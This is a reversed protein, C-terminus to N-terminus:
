QSSGSFRGLSDALTLRMAVRSARRKRPLHAPLIFVGTAQSAVKGACCNGGSGGVNIFLNGPVLNVAALKAAYGSAVVKVAVVVAVSVLGGRLPAFSTVATGGAM